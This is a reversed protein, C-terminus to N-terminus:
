LAQHLIERYEEPTAVRPNTAHCHDKMAGDIIQDFQSENVGM